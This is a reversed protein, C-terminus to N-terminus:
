CSTSSMSVVNKAQCVLSAHKGSASLQRCQTFATIHLTHSGLRLICHFGDTFMQGPLLFPMWGGFLSVEGLGWFLCYNYYCFFCFFTKKSEKSGVIFSTLLIYVAAVSLLFLYRPHFCRALRRSMKKPILGSSQSQSVQFNRAYTPQRRLDKVSKSNLRGSPEVAM